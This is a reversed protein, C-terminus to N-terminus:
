EVTGLKGDAVRFFSNKEDVTIKNEFLSNIMKLTEPAIYRVSASIEFGETKTQASIGYIAGKEIREAADDVKFSGSHKLPCYWLSKKDRSYVAGDISVYNQNSEKVLVREVGTYNYLAVALTNGDQNLVNEPVKEGIVYSDPLVLEKLAKCYGFSLEDIQTVGEPIEFSEASKGSPYAIMRTMERNYLVGDEACFNESGSQVLYAELGSKTAFDYFLHSSYATNESVRYDGGLTKVSAPIVLFKNEFSSCHNFAFDGIHLLGEPLTLQGTFGCREFASYGIYELKPSLSLEGTMGCCNGFANNGIYKINLLSLNGSIRLCQAFASDEIRSVGEPIKLEGTIKRCGYFGYAGIGKLTEPLKVSTVEFCGAFAAPNIYEVKDPIVLDGCLKTCNYFAYSGIVEVSQPLEIKNKANRCGCFATSGIVKIGEPISFSTIEESREGFISIKNQPSSFAGVETIHKGGLYNPIVVDCDAGNYTLIRKGNESVTWDEEDGVIRKTEITPQPIEGDTLPKISDISEWVTVFIEQGSEIDFDNVTIENTGVAMDKDIPIATVRKTEGTQSKSAVILVNGEGSFASNKVIDVASVTNEGCYVASIEYKEESASEGGVCLFASVIGLAFVASFITKIWRNKM